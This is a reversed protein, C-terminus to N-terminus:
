YKKTRKRRKSKKRKSRKSKGRNSKDKKSKKRKNKKMRGMSDNWLGIEKLFNKQAESIKTAMTIDTEGCCLSMFRSKSKEPESFHKIGKILLKKYTEGLDKQKRTYEHKPTDEYQQLEGEYYSLMEGHNIDSM